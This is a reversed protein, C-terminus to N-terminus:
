RGESRADDWDMADIGASPRRRQEEERRRREREDLRRRERSWSRRVERRKDGDVDGRPRSSGGSSDTGGRDMMVVATLERETPRETRGDCVEERGAAAVRTDEMGALAGAGARSGEAAGDEDVGSRERDGVAAAARSWDGGAAAVEELSDAVTLEVADVAAEAEAGAVRGSTWDVSALEDMVRMEEMGGSTDSIMSVRRSSLARM